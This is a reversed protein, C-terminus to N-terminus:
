HAASSRVRISKAGPPMEIQLDTRPSVPVIHAAGGDIKVEARSWAHPVAIRVTLPTDYLEFPSLKSRDFKPRLTFGLDGEPQVDIGQLAEAEQRYKWVAGTSAIWIENRHADLYKFLTTLNEVSASLWQGGVGHFGLQRWVGKELALRPFRTIDGQSDQYFDMRGPFVLDNDRLIRRFDSEPIEWKVGGPMGFVTLTRRGVAREITKAADGIERAAQEAGVTDAHHM